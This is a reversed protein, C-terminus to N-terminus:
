RDPSNSHRRATPPLLDAATAEFRVNDPRVSAVAVGDHKELLNEPGVGGHAASCTLHRLFSVRDCNGIKVPAHLSAHIQTIVFRVNLNGKRKGFAKVIREGDVVDGRGNRMKLGDTA